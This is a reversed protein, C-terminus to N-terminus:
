AGSVNGQAVLSPDTQRGNHMARGRWIGHEDEHRDMVESAGAAAAHGHAQKRTVIAVGPMPAGTIRRSYASQVGSTM